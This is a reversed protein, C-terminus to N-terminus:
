DVAVATAGMGTPYTASLTLAGGNVKFLSVSGDLNNVVYVFQSSPDVKVDIPGPNAVKTLNGTAVAAGMPTLAGSKSDISFASVTGDGYNTVYLFKGARDIAIGEPQTGVSYPSGLQTLETLNGTSDYSFASVGNISSDATYVFGGAKGGLPYTVVGYPGAGTVFPSNTVQTLNGGTGISYVYLFHTFATTAFVFQSAPDVAVGYPTSGSAVPADAAATLDGSAANLSFGSVSGDPNGYGGVFLYDDAPAVAISVEGTGPSPVNGKLVLAGTKLDIAFVSVDSTTRNSVYAYQGSPEVVVGSPNTDALFPGGPAPTLAGSDPDVTFASVDGNAGDTSNAVFVFKGPSACSVAVNSVATTGVTGSGNAVTCLQVPATPQTKVTVAYGAGGQVPTTFVFSTANAAITLSDGGNDQLVLGSGTLGSVSGGVTYADNTCAISVTTVNAAATGSGDSVTCTQAPGTPQTLVKVAYAAGGAVAMSFTFSTAQAAVTLNDAGKNQLVLGTGTLGGISGSITYTPSAGGSGGGCGALLSAALIWLIHRM